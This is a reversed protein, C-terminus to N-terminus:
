ESWNELKKRAYEYIQYDDNSERHMALLDAYRSELMDKVAPPRQTKNAFSQNSPCPINLFDSLIECAKAYKETIGIFSYFSLKESIQSANEICFIQKIYNKRNMVSAFLYGYVEGPDQRTFDIKNLKCEYFFM